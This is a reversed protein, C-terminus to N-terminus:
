SDRIERANGMRAPWAVCRAQRSASERALAPASTALWQLHVLYMANAAYSQYMGHDFSGNAQCTPSGATKWITTNPPRGIDTEGHLARNEAGFENGRAAMNRLTHALTVTASAKRTRIGVSERERFSSLTTRSGWVVLPFKSARVPLFVM